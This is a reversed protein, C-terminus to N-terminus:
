SPPKLRGIRLMLEITRNRTKVFAGSRATTLGEVWRAELETVLDSGVRFGVGGSATLNFSKPQEEFLVLALVADQRTRLHLEYSPGAAVFAHLPGASQALKFELNVSLWESRTEGQIPQGDFDGEVLGGRQTYGGGLRVRFPGLPFPMDTYAHALFGNRNATAVSPQWVQQSLTGGVSIGTYRGIDQAASESTLTALSLAAVMLPALISRPTVHVM